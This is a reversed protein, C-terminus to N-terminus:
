RKKDSDYRGMKGILYHYLAIMKARLKAVKKDEYLLIKTVDHIFVINIIKLFGFEKPFTKSYKKAMFLYNRAIYYARQPSHERKERVKGTLINKRKFVEGLNHEVLINKFFLIKLNHLRAKLCFDFDVLDIFFEDDYGGINKFHKMNVLNASTIVVEKEEYECELSRPYLHANRITNAAIIAVNDLVIEKSLCRTYDSFNIFRSDQDMTLLWDCGMQLSKEAGINLAKAIGLNDHNEIYIIKEGYKQELINYINENKTSSNDVVILNDINDIYSEINKIVDMTPYYFVVCGIIKL